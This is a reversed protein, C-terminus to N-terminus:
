LLPAFLRAVGELVEQQIPLGAADRLTLRRGAHAHRDIGRSLQHAVLRDYVLATVEFNLRFSRVDMNASGLMCWRDDVTMIKSHLVGADYEVVEVGAQMLEAYYSRGAWLVLPADTRTPLVIQVRVGRYCAHQLASVLPPDPVFYPVEIRISEQAASVAAFVVQSLASVDQDPGTPLVQVISDGPHGPDHYYADLDLHERTAFLWDEAFTQALFLAAPGCIRMHTDHWPSLRKLRGRYEDGINQSGTFAITGDVVAIKRHNRLHLSFRKRLRWLPLFFAVQVGADLLPRVFRRGLGLCGVSDLLLRCQVGARAKDILLERFYLGTQDPQWIYYLLHVHHKASRIADEIANYTANAEDYLRVENGGVAPVDALRRGLYEIRALDPALSIVTADEDDRVRQEAWRNFRSVLAAVRKRRKSAKRRVRNEGLLAYLLM